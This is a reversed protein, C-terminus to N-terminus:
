FVCIMHFFVVVVAFILTFVDAAFRLPLMMQYLGGYLLPTDVFM